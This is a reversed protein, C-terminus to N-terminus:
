YFLNICRNKGGEEMLVYRFKENYNEKVITECDKTKLPLDGSIEIAFPTGNDSVSKSVPIVKYKGGFPTEQSNLINTKVFFNEFNGEFPSQSEKNSCDTNISCSKRVNFVITNIESKLRKIKLDREITRQFLAGAFTLVVLLLVVVAVEIRAQNNKDKLFKM